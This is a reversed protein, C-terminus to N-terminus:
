WLPAWCLVQGVGPAAQAGHDCGVELPSGAPSRVQVDALEFDASVKPICTCGVLYRGAGVSLALKGAQACCPRFRLVVRCLFRMTTPEM